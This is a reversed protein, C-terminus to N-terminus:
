FHYDLILKQFVYVTIDYFMLQRDSSVNTFVFSNQTGNFTLDFAGTKNGYFLILEIGTAAGADGNHIFANEITMDSQGGLFVTATNAWGVVKQEVTDLFSHPSKVSSILDGYTPGVCPVPIGIEGSGPCNEIDTRNFNDIIFTGSQANTHYNFAPVIEQSKCFLPFLIFIFCLFM